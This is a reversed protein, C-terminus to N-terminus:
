PVFAQGTTVEIDIRATKDKAQPDRFSKSPLPASVGGGAAAQQIFAKALGYARARDKKESPTLSAWVADLKALGDAATLPTAQAWSRSKEVKPRSGQAQIRGRHAAERSDKDPTTPTPIPVPVPFPRIGPRRGTRPTATISQRGAAAAIGVASAIAERLVIAGIRGGVRAAPIALPLGAIPQHALSKGQNNQTSPELIRVQVTGDNLAGQPALFRLYIQEQVQSWPTDLSGSDTSDQQIVFADALPRYSFSTNIIQERARVLSRVVEGLPGLEGLVQNFAPLQTQSSIQNWTRLVKEHFSVDMKDRYEPILQDVLAKSNQPLDRYPIGAQISWSLVQVENVPTEAQSARQYLASLVDAMKGDLQALVYRNGSGNLTYVKTCYFHAPIEYDGPPIDESNDLAVLDLATPTFPEGPLTAVSDYFKHNTGSIPIEDQLLKRLQTKIANDVLRQAPDGIVRDVADPVNVCVGFLCRRGALLSTDRNELSVTPVAAIAQESSTLLQALCLNSQVSLISCLAIALLRHLFAGPALFSSFVAAVFSILAVIFLRISRRVM